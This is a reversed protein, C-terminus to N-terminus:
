CGMGTRACAHDVHQCVHESGQNTDLHRPSTLTTDLNIDLETDLPRFRPPLSNWAPTAMSLPELHELPEFKGPPSAMDVPDLTAAGGIGQAGGASLPASFLARKKSWRWNLQVKCM